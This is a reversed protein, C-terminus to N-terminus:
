QPKSWSKLFSTSTNNYGPWSWSLKLNTLYKKKKSNMEWFFFIVLFFWNSDLQFFLQAYQRISLGKAYKRWYLNEFRYINYLLVHYLLLHFRRSVIHFLWVDLHGVNQTYLSLHPTPLYLRHYYEKTHCKFYKIGFSILCQESKISGSLM